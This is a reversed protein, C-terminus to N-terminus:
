EFIELKFTSLSSEVEIYLKKSQSDFNDSQHTDNTGDRLKLEALDNRSLSSKLRIQVGINKPIRITFDSGSTSTFEAKTESNVTSEAFTVKAKTSSGNLRIRDIKYYGLDLDLSSSNVEYDLNWKPNDNLKLDLSNTETTFKWPFRESDFRLDITEVGDKKSRAFRYEGFTSKAEYETLTNTTGRLTFNGRNSRFILNAKDIRNDFKEADNTIQINPNINSKRARSDISPLFPIKITSTALLAFIVIGLIIATSVTIISAAKTGRVVFYFGALILIIPWILWLATFDFDSLLKFNNLLFLIGLTFLLFSIALYRQRLYPM